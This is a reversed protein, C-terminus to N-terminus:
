TYLGAAVAGAVRAVWGMDFSSYLGGTAQKLVGCINLFTWYDCRAM